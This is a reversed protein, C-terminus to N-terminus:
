NLSNHIYFIVCIISFFILWIIKIKNFFAWATTWFVDLFFTVDATQTKEEKRGKKHVDNHPFIVISEFSSCWFLFLLFVHVSFLALLASPLSLVSSNRCHHAMLRSHETRSSLPRLLSDDNSSGDCFSVGVRSVLDEVVSPNVNWTSSLVPPIKIQGWIFNLWSRRHVSALMRHLILPGHLAGLSAHFFLIDTCHVSTLISFNCM